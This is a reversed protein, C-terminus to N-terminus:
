SKTSRKARAVGLLGLGSILLLGGAPVPVPAVDAVSVTMGYIDAFETASGSDPGFGMNELLQFSPDRSADYWNLEFGVADLNVFGSGMTTTTVGSVYDVAQRSVEAGSRYGVVDLNSYIPTAYGGNFDTLTILSSSSNIDLLDFRGGSIPAVLAESESFFSGNNGLAISNSTPGVVWSAADLTGKIAAAVGTPDTLASPRYKRSGYRFGGSDVHALDLGQVPDPTFPIGSWSVVSVTAAQSSTAIACISLCFAFLFSYLRNM